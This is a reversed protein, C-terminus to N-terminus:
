KVELLELEFVLTTFPPILPMKGEPGYALQHPVIVRRKGGVKMGKVGDDFGKIMEESGVTWEIPVAVKERTEPNERDYSSDFQVGNLFKGRYHLVVTKGAVAEAGKGPEIEETRLSADKGKPVVELLEVEFTLPTNAPVPGVELNGYALEPPLVVRRKGGVKMGQIAGDLAPFGFRSYGQILQRKGLEFTYPAGTYTSDIIQGNLFTARFNIAIRDGRNAAAGTGDALNVITPQPLQLLASAALLTSLIM